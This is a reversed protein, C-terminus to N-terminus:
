SACAAHSAGPDNVPRGCDPCLCRADAAHYHQCEECYPVVYGFRLACAMSHRSGSQYAAAEGVYEIHRVGPVIIRPCDDAHRHSASGDGACQYTKRATRIISDDSSPEIVPM